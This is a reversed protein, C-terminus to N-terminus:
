CARVRQSGVTFVPVTHMQSPTLALLLGLATEVPLTRIQFHMPKWLSCGNEFSGHENLSHM